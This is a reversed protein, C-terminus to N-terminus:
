SAAQEHVRPCEAVFRAVDELTWHTCDPLVKARRHRGVTALIDELIDEFDYAVFTTFEPVPLQPTLPFDSPEDEIECSWKRFSRFVARAIEHPVGRLALDDAFQEETLGIRKKARMLVRFKAIIALVFVAGLVGFL